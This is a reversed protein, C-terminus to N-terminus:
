GPATQGEDNAEGQHQNHRQLLEQEWIQGRIGIICGKEKRQDHYSYEQELKGGHIGGSLVADLCLFLHDQLLLGVHSQQFFKLLLDPGKAVIKGVQKGAQGELSLLTIQRTDLVEHLSGAAVKVFLQAALNGLHIAEVVNLDVRQSAQKGGLQRFHP